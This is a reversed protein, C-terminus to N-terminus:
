SQDDYKENLMRRVLCDDKFCSCHKQRYSIKRSKDGFALHVSTGDEVGECYIKHDDEKRYFPCVVEKSQSQYPKM